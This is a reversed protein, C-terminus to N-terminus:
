SQIIQSPQNVYQAQIALIQPCYMTIPKVHCHAKSKSAIHLSMYMDKYEIHLVINVHFGFYLYYLCM